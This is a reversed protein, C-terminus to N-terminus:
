IAINRACPPPSVGSGLIPATILAIVALSCLEGIKTNVSAGADSLSRSFSAIARIELCPTHM